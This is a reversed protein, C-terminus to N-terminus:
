SRQFIRCASLYGHRGNFLSACAADAGVDNLGSSKMNTFGRHLRSELESFRAESRRMVFSKAKDQRGGDDMM